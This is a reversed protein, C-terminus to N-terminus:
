TFLVFMKMKDFLVQLMHVSVELAGTYRKAYNVIKRGDNDM